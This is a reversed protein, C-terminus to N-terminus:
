KKILIIKDTQKSIMEKFLSKLIEYDEPTIITSNIEISSSIQILDNTVSTNFNYVLEGKPTKYIISSPFYEIKYNEPV